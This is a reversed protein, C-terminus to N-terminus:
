GHGNGGDRGNFGGNRGGNEGNSGSRGNGSRRGAVFAPVIGLALYRARVHEPLLRFDTVVGRCEPEKCACPMTWFDEDMNTSYDFRIEEGEAIDKIAVLARTGKLGANPNCSHNVYLGIPRPLIYSAPGVQFLNAGQPMGHIPHSRDFTEGVFTLIRDGIRYARTAFVGRGVDCEAVALETRSMRRRRLRGARDTSPAPTDWASEFDLLPNRPGPIKEASQDLPSLPLESM